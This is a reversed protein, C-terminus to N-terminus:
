CPRGANTWCSPEGYRFGDAEYGGEGYPVPEGYGPDYAFDAGDPGPGYPMPGEPPYDAPDDMGYGDDPPYGYGDDPGYGQAYADEPGPGYDEDGYGDPGYAYGGDHYPESEMGEAGEDLPGAYPDYGDDPYGPPQAYSVPAFARYPYHGTDPGALAAAPALALAVAAIILKM